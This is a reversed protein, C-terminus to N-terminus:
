MLILDGLVRVTRATGNSLMVTITELKRIRFVRGDISDEHTMVCDQDSPFPRVSFGGGKKRFAMFDVDQDDYYSGHLGDNAQWNIFMDVTETAPEGNEDLWYHERLVGNDVMVWGKVEPNSGFVFLEFTETTKNWYLMTSYIKGGEEAVMSKVVWKEGDSVIVLGKADAAPPLGLESPDLSVANGAADFGALGEPTGTHLSKDWALEKMNAHNPIFLAPKGSPDWAALTEPNGKHGSEPWVLDDLESHDRIVANGTPQIPNMSRNSSQKPADFGKAKEM